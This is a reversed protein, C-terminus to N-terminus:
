DCYHTSFLDLHETNLMDYELGFSLIDNKTGIKISPLHEQLNTIINWNSEISGWIIIAFDNGIKLDEKIALIYYACDTDFRIEFKNFFLIESFSSVCIYCYKNQFYIDINQKNESLILCSQLFSSSNPILSIKKGSFIDKISKNISESFSWISVINFNRHKYDLIREKSSIKTILSLYEEKYDEIYLGLPLLTFNDANIVIKISKWSYNKIFIHNILSESLNIEEWYICKNTAHETVCLFFVSKDMKILLHCLHTKEKSFSSNLFQM